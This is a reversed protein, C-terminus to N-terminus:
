EQGEEFISDPTRTKVWSVYIPQLHRTSGWDLTTRMNRSAVRPLVANVGDGAAFQAHYRPIKDPGVIRDFSHIHAMGGRSLLKLVYRTRPGTERIGVAVLKLNTPGNLQLFLLAIAARRKVEAVCGGM